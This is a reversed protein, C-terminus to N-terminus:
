YDVSCLVGHMLQELEEINKMRENALSKIKELDIREGMENIKKMYEIQESKAEIIAALGNLHATVKMVQAQEGLYTGSEEQAKATRALEKRTLILEERQLKLELRQLLIAVIVGAFAFGSFLSNLSGYSDGFQGKKELSNFFVEYIFPTILWAIFIFSFIGVVIWWNMGETNKM